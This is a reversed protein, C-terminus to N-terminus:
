VPQEPVSTHQDSTSPDIEAAARARAHAAACFDDVIGTLSGHELYAHAPCWLCLEATRCPGCTRLFEPDTTRAEAGAVALRRWATALPESRVDAVFDPHWLSSCLRLSGEHGVTFSQNVNCRFLWGPDPWEETTAARRCERRVAAAREPDAQEVAAIEDPTLREARIEANRAADRDYRLHLLPDFRFFDTTHSWGFAAMADLEHVNSRLITAKYRAPVRGAALLDVGRLFADFSGPTRTVREYTDRTAGYITIEVDRPPYSRFLEIHRPRILCANTLVSVLLGRRKLALYVDPFDARLLPEGGSLNCWLAGLEVAQDAVSVIEDLTLEAARADPDGAPLNIYCHRCDNNCRATLELDFSLPVGKGQLARWLGLEPLLM